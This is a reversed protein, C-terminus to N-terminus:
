IEPRRNEVPIMRVQYLLNATNQVGGIIDLRINLM